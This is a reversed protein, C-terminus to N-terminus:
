DGNITTTLPQPRHMKFGFLADRHQCEPCETTSASDWHVDGFTEAGEDTVVALTASKIYFMADNGCKPCALGALCNTNTM